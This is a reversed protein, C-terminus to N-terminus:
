IKIINFLKKSFKSGTKIYYNVIKFNLFFKKGYNIHSNYYGVRKLIKGKVSNKKYIINIYYFNKVKKSLRIVIM